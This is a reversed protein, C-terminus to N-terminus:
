NTKQKNMKAKVIQLLIPLVSIFIILLAVIEINKRIWPIEGLFYGAFTLSFIWVAGGLIDFSLFKKYNMEAIGAVFPSFTRVIPVFRAMIITKPGYKEFFTHTKDLYEQKVLKKGRLKIHLVRLGIKRGIWYNTNDGIVAAIFLLTTLFAMNLYGLRAFLGATFLLSDGPLFPMIVVGTEIFIVLFLIIYVADNYNLFLWEFDLHLIHKFLEIM